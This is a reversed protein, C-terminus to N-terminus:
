VELPNVTLFNLILGHWKFYTLTLNSLVQNRFIIDKLNSDEQQIYNEIRPQFDQMVRALM